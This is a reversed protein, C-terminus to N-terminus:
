VTMQKNRAQTLASRSTPLCLGPLSHREVSRSKFGISRTGSGILQKKIDHRPDPFQFVYARSHTDRVSRSKFGVYRIGGGILQKKHLRTHQFMTKIRSLFAYVFSCSHCVRPSAAAFRPALALASPVLPLAEPQRALLADRRSRPASPM